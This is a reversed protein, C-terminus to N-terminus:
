ARAKGKLKQVMVEDAALDREQEAKTGQESM